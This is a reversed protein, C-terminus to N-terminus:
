HAMLIPLEALKLVSRTVGGILLEQLRSHGYGGMVVLDCDRRAVEELLREGVAAGGTELSACDAAIRHYALYRAAAVRADTEPQEASRQHAVTLVVVRGAAALFPLASQMARGAERSGDWAVAVSTGFARHISPAVLIPRGTEFLSAEFLPAYANGDEAGPRPMVILDFLRGHRAIVEDEQGTVTRCAVVFSGPVAPADPETVPVGADHCYAQYLRRVQVRREDAAARLSEIIQDVALVSMDGALAPVCREPDTEVHLLEVYARHLRGVALATKLAAESGPGGTVPVLITAITMTEIRIQRIRRGASVTRSPDPCQGSDISM